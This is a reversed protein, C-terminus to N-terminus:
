LTLNHIRQEINHLSRNKRTSTPVSIILVDLYEIVVWTSVGEVRSSNFDIWFPHFGQAELVPLKLPSSTTSYLLNYRQLKEAMRTGLWGCGVIGINLDRLNSIIEKM